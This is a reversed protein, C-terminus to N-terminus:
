NLACIEEAMTNLAICDARSIHRKDPDRQWPSLILLRGEAVADFLADSPKFYDGFGNDALYIIFHREKLLVSLVDREHRSIFPSVMVTRQRAALVCGNMYDRLPQPNGLRAEEDMKHRVHVSQRNEDMLVSINGVADYIRGNIEVNHQVCFFGPKLRKTALRAPNMQVYRIMSQLQGHTSMPRVFPKETFIVSQSARITDRSISSVENSVSSVKQTAPDLRLKKVGQWFGRVASLIGKQMPKTVHLIAHLHNPMLCYQLLSIEFHRESIQALDHIVAKGLESREVFARDPDDDPIVLTGLLPERTPVVLIMHYIGIGHWAHGYKQWHWNNHEMQTLKPAFTCFIDSMHLHQSIKKGRITDRSVSSVEKVRIM